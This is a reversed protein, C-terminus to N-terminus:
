PALLFGNDWKNEEGVEWFVYRGNTTTIRACVEERPDLRLMLVHLEQRITAAAVAAERENGHDLQYRLESLELQMYDLQITM